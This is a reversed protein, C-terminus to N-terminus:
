LIKKAPLVVNATLVGIVLGCAVLMMQFGRSAGSLFDGRLFDELSLFGFSGPVLLMMGPLQFLQAPRQTLRALGNAVACVALSAVFSAVHGPLYRTAFLTAVYGTAGSVLAAWVFNRPVSFVVAFALSAAVIAGLQFVFPLAVRTAPAAAGPSLSREIGIALAIGFVLSLFTMLADMLRSGGSVLNKQALEALGTTFTMGPVLAIVGSLVLVERSAHPLLKAAAGAMVAAAFAGVFDALFRGSQHKGLARGLADILVGMTAALWVELLGGRFFVAAAGSVTATAIWKLWAPYPPRREELERLRERAHEITCRKDAVDNFIRDVLTLRELDVGWMMVRRMRLLPASRPSESPVLSIFLGTPFAFAHATYGEAEAVVRIVEELRYTPCGYSVLTGGIEVLYDALEEPRRRASVPGDSLSRESSGV